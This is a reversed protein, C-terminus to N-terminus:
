QIEAQAKALALLEPESNSTGVKSPGYMKNTVSFRSGSLARIFWLAFVAGFFLLVCVEFFQTSSM